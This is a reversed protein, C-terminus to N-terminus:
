SYFGNSLHKWTSYEFCSIAVKFAVTHQSINTINLNAMFIPHTYSPGKSFTLSERIRLVSPQRDYNVQIPIYSLRLPEKGVVKWHRVEDTEGSVDIFSGEASGHDSWGCDSLRPLEDDFDVDAQSHYDSDSEETVDSGSELEEDNDPDEAKPQSSTFIPGLNPVSINKDGRETAPVAASSGGGGSKKDKWARGRGADGTIDYRTLDPDPGTEAM